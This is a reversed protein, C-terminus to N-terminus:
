FPLGAICLVIFAYKADDLCEKSMYMGFSQCTCTLPTGPHYPFIGFVGKYHKTNCTQMKLDITALSFINDSQIKYTKPLMHSILNWFLDDLFRM